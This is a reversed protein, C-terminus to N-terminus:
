GGFFIHWFPSLTLAGKWTWGNETIVEILPNKMEQLNFKYKYAFDVKLKGEKYIVGYAANWDYQYFDIGRHGSWHFDATPKGDVGVRYSVKREIDQAHAVGNGLKIRIKHVLNIKNAAFIDLWKADVVKWEAVLDEKEGRRIQWPLDSSNLALLKQILEDKGIPKAGEKPEIKSAWTAMFGWAPIIALYYGLLSLLVTAVNKDIFAEIVPKSIDFIAMISFAGVTPLMVSVIAFIFFLLVRKGKIKREM